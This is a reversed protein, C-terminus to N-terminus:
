PALGVRAMLEIFRPHDRIFDYGENLRMSLVSRSGSREEYGLELADLARGADGVFAYVQGLDELGFEVRDVVGNPLVQPEGTEAHRVFAEGVLKAAEVDRGTREAWTVCIGAAESARGARLYTLWLNGYQEVADPYQRINERAIAISADMDGADMLIYSLNMSMLRSFPDVEVARRALEIAEEHGGQWSLIHSLWHLAGTNNPQITLARRLSAEAGKWDYYHILRNWGVSTLAEPLNPDLALARNAAAESKGRAERAVDIDAVYEPLLFYADALGSHALAFEPDLAVVEDFYEVAQYLSERTREELLQKGRFYSEFAALSQTPASDLREHEEASLTVRLSDAISTAIESQIAFVDAATLERDYTEAWVHEDSAADILQVNIRIRDGSRQVGGELIAAVGLERAIEPITKTTERYQLVSTRSITKISRIQSINTLLDDHIGITFPDNAADGSMNEFPLVAVSREGEPAPDIDDTDAEVFRDLALFWLAGVALAAFIILLSRRGAPGRAQSRDVDADRKVGEPTLEFAWALVLALPFGLIVVFTLVQLIWHPADFTPLVTSAVEVVIWGVVGYTTAVRFVNRRKLETLFGPKENM